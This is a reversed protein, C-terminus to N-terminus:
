AQASVAARTEAAWRAADHSIAPHFGWERLQHECAAPDDGAELLSWAVARARERMRAPDPGTPRRSEWLRHAAQLGPPLRRVQHAALPPLKRRM